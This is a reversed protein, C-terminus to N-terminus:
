AVWHGTVFLAALGAGLGGSVFLWLYLALRSYSLLYGLVFFLLFADLAYRPLSLLPSWGGAYILPLMVICFTYAWLGLLELPVVVWGVGILVLFLFLFALDVTHSAELAAEPLPQDLQDFFLSTPNFIHRMGEGAATWANKLTTLPNTPARFWHLRQQAMTIFPDGFRIWLFTMYGALGVPVIGVGLAGRWGFERRNRLWEYGLPIILLVGLNRTAAALAGLVGALLLDRRVNAAWFSGASLAVFLAETYVANLFFATPFFAFTLVTARAVKLGWHKEAIRYLFCLAFFTAVLSVLVGWSAPPGGLAAGLRILLPFLPFFATREPANLDYGETAIALYQGGDWRAWLYLFGRAIEQGEKNVVVPLLAGAGIGVGFFFLRSLVFIM